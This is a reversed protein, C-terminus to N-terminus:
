LRISAMAVRAKAFRVRCADAREDLVLHEFQWQVHELTSGWAHFSTRLADSASKGILSPFFEDFLVPWQQHQGVPFSRWHTLRVPPERTLFMPSFDFLPSLMLGGSSRIFATNRGHNDEAKLCYSLVDRKLYELIQAVVAGPEAHSVLSGLVDEHFLKQGHERANQLTYASMMHHYHWRGNLLECDFRPIFLMNGVMFPQSHVNLGAERALQLWLYEHALLVQEEANRPFKVLYRETISEDALCADPYFKGDVSHSMWLKPAQGLMMTACRLLARERLVVDFRNGVAELEELSWGSFGRPINASLFLSAQRIRQNGPPQSAGHMLVTTDYKAGDRHHGNLWSLLTDRGYGSPLMDLLFAPWGPCRYHHFSLPHLFDLSADDVHDLHQLVYDPLYELTCTSALGKVPQDIHLTAAVQWGGDICKEIELRM